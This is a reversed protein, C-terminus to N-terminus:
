LDNARARILMLIDRTTLLYDECRRVTCFLNKMQPPTRCGWVIELPTITTDLILLEWKWGNWTFYGSWYVTCKEWSQLNDPFWKVHRATLVFSIVVEYFLTEIKCNTTDLKDLINTICCDFRFCFFLFNTYGLVYSLVHFLTKWLSLCHCLIDSYNPASLRYM